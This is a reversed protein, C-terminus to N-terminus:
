VPMRMIEEYAQVARDRVVALMEIGLQAKTTAVMLDEITAPGGVAVTQAVADAQHELSSVAQLGRQLAQGFGQEPAAAGTTPAARGVGAVGGIGPVGGVGAIPGISSM